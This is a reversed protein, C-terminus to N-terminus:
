VIFDKGPFCRSQRQVLHTRDRVTRLAPLLGSDREDHFRIGMLVQRHQSRPLGLPKLIPHLLITQNAHRHIDVARAIQWKFDGGRQLHAFGNRLLDDALSHQRQGVTYGTWQVEPRLDGICCKVSSQPCQVTNHGHGGQFQPRQGAAYSFGLVPTHVQLVTRIVPFMNLIVPVCGCRCLPISVHVLSKSSVARVPVQLSATYIVTGAAVSGLPVLPEAIPHLPM